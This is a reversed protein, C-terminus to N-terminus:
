GPCFLNTAAILNRFLVPVTRAEGNLSAYMGQEADCFAHKVTRFPLAV